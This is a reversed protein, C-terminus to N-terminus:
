TKMTVKRDCRRQIGGKPRSLNMTPPTMAKALPKRQQWLLNAALGM